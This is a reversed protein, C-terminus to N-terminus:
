TELIILEDRQNDILNVWDPVRDSKLYNEKTLCRLPLDVTGFIAGGLWATYNPKSPATHFMFKQIKLKESYLDSRVLSLLESKLRSAFGKTMTTGGILLINEALVRRVDIPCQMIANLIMTPLSLNDNDREWLVEFAKERVEGPIDISKVGPYKVFPPPNPAEKTGLKVSRELTTVFCTRVKIDEVMKETVDVNPYLEKLSKMLYEHVVQGGLPLAQWAKLIPEGEFIPILTAEKYGVDLVLASNIGLTSITALHTPLLMLSGIEFHRFLVKALTNRFQTPSLLSELVVIRADKPSLVVHRFFLAHLFEVLLQYLDETNKYDYIRRLEKTEPCKIETRIIGRPTPEGAYGFKTYASGIDFIVMQKNSLFRVGEYNRLM